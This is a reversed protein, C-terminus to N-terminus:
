VLVSGLRPGIVLMPRAAAPPRFQSPKPPSTPISTVEVSVHLRVQRSEGRFLCDQTHLICTDLCPLNQGGSNRRICKLAYLMENAVLLYAISAGASVDLFVCPRSGGAVDIVASYSMRGYSILQRLLDAFDVRMWEQLGNLSTDCTDHAAVVM